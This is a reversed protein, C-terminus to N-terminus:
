VFSPSSPDWFSRMDRRKCHYTSRLRGRIDGSEMKEHIFSKTFGM